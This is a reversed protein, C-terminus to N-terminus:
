KSSVGAGTQEVNGEENHEGRAEADKKKKRSNKRQSSGGTLAQEAAVPAAAAVETGSPGGDFLLGLGILRITTPESASIRLKSEVISEDRFRIFAETRAM